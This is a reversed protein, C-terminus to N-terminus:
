TERVDETPARRRLVRRSTRIRVSEGGDPEERENDRRREGKEKGGGKGIM